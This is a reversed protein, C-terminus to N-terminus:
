RPPEGLGDPGAAQVFETAPPYAAVVPASQWGDGYVVAVLAAPTSPDVAPAELQVTLLRSAGPLVRREPLLAEAWAGGDQSMLSVKGRVWDHVNGANRVSVGVEVVGSSPVTRVDVAEISIEPRRLRATAVYTLLVPVALRALPRLAPHMVSAEQEDGEFLEIFIVPYAAVIGPVAPFAVELERIEGPLVTLREQEIRLLRSSEAVADPGDFYVPTGDDQHTGLGTSLRVTVPDNGRNYLHLRRLSGAPEVELELRAPSVVLSAASGEHVCLAGFSAAVIM